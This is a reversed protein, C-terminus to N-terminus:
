LFHMEGDVLDIGEQLAQMEHILQDGDDSSSGSSVLSVDPVEQAGDSSNPIAAYGFESATDAVKLYQSSRGPRQPSEDFFTIEIGLKAKGMLVDEELCCLNASTELDGLMEMLNVSKESVISEFPSSGRDVGVSSDDLRQSSDMYPVCEAFSTEKTVDKRKKGSHKSPLIKQFDKGKIFLEYPYLNRRYYRKAVEGSNTCETLEKYVQVWGGRTSCVQEYGGREHVALFLQFLSISTNQWRPLGRFTMKNRKMFRLVDHEFARENRQYMQVDLVLKEEKSHSVLSDPFKMDLNAVSPGGCANVSAPSDPFAFSDEVPCDAQKHKGQKKSNMKTKVLCKSEKSKQTIGDRLVPTLVVGVEDAHGAAETVVSATNTFTCMAIREENSVALLKNAEMCAQEVSVDKMYCKREPHKSTSSTLANRRGKRGRICIRGQKETLTAALCPSPTRVTYLKVSLARVWSHTHCRGLFEVHYWGPKHHGDFLCHLQNSPDKTIVGPWKCYGTMKAWVLSGEAIPSKVYCLGVRKAAKDYWETNEEPVHCDAFDRNYNM